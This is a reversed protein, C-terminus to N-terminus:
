DDLTKNDSRTSARCHLFFQAGSHNTFHHGVENFLHHLLCKDIERHREIEKIDLIYTQIYLPRVPDHKGM